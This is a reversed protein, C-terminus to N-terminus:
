GEDPGLGGGIGGVQGEQHNENTSLYLSRQTSTQFPSPRLRPDLIHNLVSEDRNEGRTLPTPGSRLPFRPCPDMRDAALFGRPEETGLRRPNQVGHGQLFVDCGRLVPRM